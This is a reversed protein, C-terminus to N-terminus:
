RMLLIKDEYFKYSYKIVITKDYSGHYLFTDDIWYIAESVVYENTDDYYYVMTGNELYEIYRNAKYPETVGSVGKEILEWKGVIANKPDFPSTNTEDKSCSILM